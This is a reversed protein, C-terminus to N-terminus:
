DLRFPTFRTHRDYYDEQEKAKLFNVVRYTVPTMVVEWSTKLVYQALAVAIVQQTPWIGYFAMVYFLGSDVAEGV